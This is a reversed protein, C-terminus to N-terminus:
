KVNRSADVGVTSSSNGRGGTVCVGSRQDYRVGSQVRDHAHQKVMWLTAGETAM